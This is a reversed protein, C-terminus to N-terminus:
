IIGGGYEYYDEVGRFECGSMSKLIKFIVKKEGSYQGIGKISMIAISGAERNNVYELEYHKGNVLINDGVVVVPDPCIDEGTYEYTDEVGYVKAQTVTFSLVKVGSTYYSYFQIKGLKSIDQTNDKTFCFSNNTMHHVEINVFSSMVDDHATTYGSGNGLLTDQNVVKFHDSLDSTLPPSSLDHEISFAVPTVVALYRSANGLKLDSTGYLERIEPHEKAYYLNGTVNGYFSASTEPYNYTEAQITTGDDKIATWALDVTIVYNEAHQKHSPNGDPICPIVGGHELRGSNWLRFWRYVKFDNSLWTVIDERKGFSKVYDFGESDVYKDHSAIKSQQVANINFNSMDARLLTDTINDPNLENNFHYASIHQDFLISVETSIYNDYSAQDSLIINKWAIRNSLLEKNDDVTSVYVEIRHGPYPADPKTPTAVGFEFLQDYVRYYDASIVEEGTTLNSSISGTAYGSIVNYYRCKWTMKAVESEAKEKIDSWSSLLYTKMKDNSQAYDFVLNGYRDLFDDLSSITNKWVCQGKAYGPVADNNFWKHEWITPIYNVEPVISNDNILLKTFSNNLIKSNFDSVVSLQVDNIQYM